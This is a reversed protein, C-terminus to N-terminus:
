SVPERKPLAVLVDDGEIKVAYVPLPEYAPSQIVEGTRIDFVAWHSICVLEHGRVFGHSMYAQAHTCENSFAYITGDVNALGVLERNIKLGKLSGPPFDSLKGVSVFENDSM